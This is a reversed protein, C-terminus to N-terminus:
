ESYTDWTIKPNTREYLEVLQDLTWPADTEFTDLWRSFRAWDLSLMPPVGIEEGYPDGTGRVDIRGCSYNDTILEMKYHEGAKRGTYPSDQEQVHHELTTLDRQRYWDLSTPGMWNTSYRLKM